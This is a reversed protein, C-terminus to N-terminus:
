NESISFFISSTVFFLLTSNGKWYSISIGSQKQFIYILLTTTQILLHIELILNNLLQLINVCLKFLLFIPVQWYMGKLLYSLIESWLNVLWLYCWKHDLIVCKLNGLSLGRCLYVLMESWLVGLSLYCWKHGLIVCKLNGLSLGCCLYVPMESRLAGLSLYCWKHSKTVSHYDVVCTFWCKM